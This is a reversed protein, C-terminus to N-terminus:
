DNQVIKAMRGRFKDPETGDEKRRGHFMGLGNWHGYPYHVQIGEM